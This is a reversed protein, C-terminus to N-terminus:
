IGFSSLFALMKPTVYREYTRISCRDEEHKKKGRTRQRDSFASPSVAKLYLSPTCVVHLSQCKILFVGPFSNETPQINPPVQFPSHYLGNTVLNTNEESLSVGWSGWSELQVSDFHLHTLIFKLDKESKERVSINGGRGEFKPM